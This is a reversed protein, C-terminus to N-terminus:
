IILSSYKKALLFSGFIITIIGVINVTNISEGFFLLGIVIPLLIAMGTFVSVVKAMKGLKLGKQFLVFSIGQTIILAFIAWHFNFELLTPIGLKAFISSFGGFVGSILGEEIGVDYYNLRYLINSITIALAMIAISIMLFDFENAHLISVAPHLDFSLFFIGLVTFVIGLLENRHLKTNFIFFGFITVVAPGIGIIPQITSISSMALALFFMIAGSFAFFTGLLWYKFKESFIFKKIGVFETLGSKQLMFGIAQVSIGFIGLVIPFLM